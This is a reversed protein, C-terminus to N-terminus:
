KDNLGLFIVSWAKFLINNTQAKGGVLSIKNGTGLKTKLKLNKKNRYHVLSFALIIGDFHFFFFDKEFLLLFAPM